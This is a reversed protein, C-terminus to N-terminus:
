LLFSPLFPSYKAITSFFAISNTGVLVDCICSHQGRWQKCLLGNSIDGAGRQGTLVMGQYLLASPPHHTGSAKSPMEAEYGM